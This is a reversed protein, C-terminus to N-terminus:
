GCVGFSEAELFDTGVLEVLQVFFTDHWPYYDPLMANWHVLYDQVFDTLMAIFTIKGSLINLSILMIRGCRSIVQYQLLFILLPKMTKSIHIRVSKIRRQQLSTLARSLTHIPILTVM